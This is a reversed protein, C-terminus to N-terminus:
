WFGMMIFISGDNVITTGPVSPELREKIQALIGVRQVSRCMKIVGACQVVCVACVSSSHCSSLVAPMPLSNSACRVNRFYHVVPETCPTLCTRTNYKLICLRLLAPVPLRPLQVPADGELDTKRGRRPPRFGQKHRVKMKEQLISDFAM